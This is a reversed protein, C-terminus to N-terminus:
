EEPREASRTGHGNGTLSKIVFQAIHPHNIQLSLHLAQLSPVSYQKSHVDNRDLYRPEQM